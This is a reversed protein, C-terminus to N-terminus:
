TQRLACAAAGLLEGVVRALDNEDLVDGRESARGGAVESGHVRQNILEAILEGHETDGAVLEAMLCVLVIGLEGVGQLVDARTSAELELALEKGAGLDVACELDAQLFGGECEEVCVLAV